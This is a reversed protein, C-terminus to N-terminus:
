TTAHVGGQEEAVWLEAQRAGALALAEALEAATADIVTNDALVWNVSPTGTAQLALIARAMRSQSTEDGDFTNGAQTTVTIRAVAEARALKFAERAQSAAAEAAQAEREAVFQAWAEADLVQWAGDVVCWHGPVYDANPPLGQLHDYAEPTVGPARISGVLGADTIRVAADDPLAFVVRGTSKETIAQM